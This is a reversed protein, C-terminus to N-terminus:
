IQAMRFAHLIQHLEAYNFVGHRAFGHAYRVTIPRMDAASYEARLRHWTESGHEVPNPSEQVAKAIYTGATTLRIHKELALEQLSAGQKWAEWARQHALPASMSHSRQPKRLRNHPAEQMCARIENLTIANRRYAHLLIAHVLELSVYADSAAYEIQENSLPTQTWSSIRTAGKDLDVALYGKCLDRLSILFRHNQWREADFRWALRSLELGGAPILGFDRHLKALDQHIAVGTKPIHPDTLISALSNPLNRMKSLQIVYIDFATALQLVATKGVSLGFNWELDLGIIREITGTNAVADPLANDVEQIETLYHLRPVQYAVTPQQFARMAKPITYKPRRYTYTSSAPVHADAISAAMADVANSYARMTTWRLSTFARGVRRGVMACMLRWAEYPHGLRVHTM